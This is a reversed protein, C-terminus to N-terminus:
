HLFPLLMYVAIILILAPIWFMIFSFIWQAGDPFGIGVDDVGIGTIFSLSEKIASIGTEGQESSLTVTSSTTSNDGDSITASDTVATTGSTGSISDIDIDNPAGFGPDIITVGDVSAAAFPYVILFLM